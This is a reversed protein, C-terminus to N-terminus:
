YKSGKFREYMDISMETVSGNKISVDNKHEPSMGISTSVVITDCVDSGSLITPGSTCHLYLM